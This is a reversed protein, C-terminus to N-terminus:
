MEEMIIKVHKPDSKDVKLINFQSKKDFLVENEEPVEALGNLYVGNKSKIEFSVTHNGKRFESIVKEDTSSSTFSKMIVSKGEKSENLFNNFGSEDDGFTMGRYVTANTKPAYKLFNSIHDINKDTEKDGSKADRLYSNITIYDVDSYDSVANIMDKGEPHFKIGSKYLEMNKTLDDTNIKEKKIKIKTKDKTKSNNIADFTYVKGNSLKITEQSESIKEIKLDKGLFNIVEGVNFSGKSTLKEKKGKPEAKNDETAKVWQYREYTKGDKKVTIKKKVLGKKSRETM